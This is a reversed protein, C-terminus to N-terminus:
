QLFERLDKRMLPLVGDYVKLDTDSVPVLNVGRAQFYELGSESFPFENVAAKIAAIRQPPLNQNAILVLSLASPTSGLIRLQGRIEAPMREFVARSTATAGQRQGILALVANNDTSHFHQRLDRAPDINLQRLYGETELAVLSLHHPLNLVRGKIDAVNRAPDDKSVLLLAYFDSRVGVLLQYQYTQQMYRAFHPPLLAVDFDGRVMRQAFKGPNAATGVSVQQNLKLALFNKLPASEVMLTRTSLYPAIGLRLAEAQVSLSWCALICLLLYASRSNFSM